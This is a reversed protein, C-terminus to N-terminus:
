RSGHTTEQAMIRDLSNEEILVAAIMQAKQLHMLVRGTALGNIVAQNAQTTEWLLERKLAEVKDYDISM